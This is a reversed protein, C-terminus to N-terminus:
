TYDQNEDKKVEMEKKCLNLVSQRAHVDGIYAIGYYSDSLVCQAEYWSLGGRKALTELSQGGHNKKAQKEHKQIIEWPIYEKPNSNIIPFQKKNEM